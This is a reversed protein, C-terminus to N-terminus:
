TMISEERSELLGTFAAITDLWSHAAHGCVRAGDRRCTRRVRLKADANERGTAALLTSPACLQHVARVGFFVNRAELM